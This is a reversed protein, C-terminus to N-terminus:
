DEDEGGPVMKGLAGRVAVRIEDSTSLELVSDVLQQLDEFHLRRLV